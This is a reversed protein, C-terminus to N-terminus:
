SAYGAFDLAAYALASQAAAVTAFLEGNWAARGGALAKVASTWRNCRPLGDCSWKWDHPADDNQANLGSRLALIARAMQEVQYTPTTECRACHCQNGSTLALAHWICEGAEVLALTADFAPHTAFTSTTQSLLLDRKSASFNYVAGM